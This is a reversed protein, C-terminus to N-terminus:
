GAGLARRMMTVLEDISAEFAEPTATDLLEPAHELLHAATRLVFPRSLEPTFQGTAHAHELLQRLPNGDLVSFQDLVRRYIPHGRERLFSRGFADLQPDTRAFALGARLQAGLTDFVDGSAPTPPAQRAFHERKRAIMREVLGMYLAEKNEFHHYFQGKSMGAATLIRNLSAKEYGRAAFEDIAAAILPDRHAFDHGFGM